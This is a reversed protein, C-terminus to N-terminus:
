NHADVKANNAIILFLGLKAITQDIFASLCKFQYFADALFSDPITSFGRWM